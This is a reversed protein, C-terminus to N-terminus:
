YNTVEKSNSLGNDVYIESILVEGEICKEIEEYSMSRCEDMVEKFIRALLPKYALIKKVNEDLKKKNQDTGKLRKGFTTLQEM